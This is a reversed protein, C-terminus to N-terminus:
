DRSTTTCRLRFFGTKEFRVKEAASQDLGQIRESLFGPTLPLPDCDLEAAESGGQRIDEIARKVATAVRGDRSVAFLRM